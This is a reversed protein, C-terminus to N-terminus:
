RPVRWGAAGVFRSPRCQGSTAGRQTARGWFRVQRRREEDLICRAHGHRVGDPAGLVDGHDEDRHVAHEELRTWVSGVVHHNLDGRRTRHQKGDDNRAEDAREGSTVELDGALELVTVRDLLRHALEGEVRLLIGQRRDDSRLGDRLTTTQREGSTWDLLSALRDVMRAVGSLFLTVEEDVHDNALQVGVVDALLEIQLGKQPTEEDDNGRCTLREHPREREEKELLHVERQGELLAAVDALERLEDDVCAILALLRRIRSVLGDEGIVSLNPKKEVETSPIEDTGKGEDEEVGDETEKAGGDNEYRCFPGTM